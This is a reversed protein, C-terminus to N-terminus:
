HHGDGSANAFGAANSSGGGAAEASMSIGIGSSRWLRSATGCLGRNNCTYEHCM